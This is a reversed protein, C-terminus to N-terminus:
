RNGAPKRYEMEAQPLLGEIQRIREDDLPHTSLFAIQKGGGHKQEYEAFRKWFELAAHPDYGARAM